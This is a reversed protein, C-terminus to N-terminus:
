NYQDGGLSTSRLTSEINSIIKEIERSLYSPRSFENPAEIGKNKLDNWIKRRNVM